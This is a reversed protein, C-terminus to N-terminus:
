RLVACFGLVILVIAIRAVVEDRPTKEFVDQTEFTAAVRAPLTALAIPTHDADEVIMRWRPGPLAYIILAGIFSGFLAGLVAGKEIEDILLGCFGFLGAGILGLIMPISHRREPGYRADIRQVESWPLDVNEVLGPRALTLDREGIDYLAGEHRAVPTRIRVAPGVYLLVTGDEGLVTRDRRANQESEELPSLAVPQTTKRASAVFERSRRIVGEFVPSGSRRQRMVILMLFLLLAALVPLLIGLINDRRQMRRIVEADHGYGPQVTGYCAVTAILAAATTGQM